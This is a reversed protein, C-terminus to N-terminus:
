ENLPTRGLTPRVKHSRSVEVVLHGLSSTPQQAASSLVRVDSRSLTARGYMFSFSDVGHKTLISKLVQISCRWILSFSVAPAHPVFPAFIFAYLTKFSLGSPFIGKLFGLCPCCTLVLLKVLLLASSFSPSTEDPGSYLLPSQLM